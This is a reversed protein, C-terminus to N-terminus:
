AKEGQVRALATRIRRLKHPTGPISPETMGDFDCLADILESVAARTLRMDRDTPFCKCKRDLVALVDVAKTDNTNM